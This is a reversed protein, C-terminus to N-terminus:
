QWGQLAQYPCLIFAAKHTGSESCAQRRQALFFVSALAEVSKGTGSANANIYGKLIGEAKKVMFAINQVQDIRLRLASKPSIKLSQLNIGLIAAADKPSDISTSFGGMFDLGVKPQKDSTSSNEDLDEFLRRREDPSMSPRSNHGKEELEKSFFGTENGDTTFKDLIKM